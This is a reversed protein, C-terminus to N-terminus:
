TIGIHINSLFLNKVKEIKGARIAEEPSQGGLLAHPSTMWADGLRAIIDDHLQAINLSNPITRIMALQTETLPSGVFRELETRAIRYQHGARFAKLENRKIMGYIIPKRTKLARAIEEVTFVMTEDM